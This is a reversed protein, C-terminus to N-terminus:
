ACVPTGPVPLNHRVEFIKGSIGNDLLRELAQTRGGRSEGAGVGHSMARAACGGCSALAVPFVM